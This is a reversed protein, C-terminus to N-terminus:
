ESDNLQINLRQTSAMVLPGSLVSQKELGSDSECPDPEFKPKLKSREINHCIRM